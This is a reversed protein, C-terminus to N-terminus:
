HHKGKKFFSLELSLKGVLEYLALNERKLRNIEIIGSDSALSRKSLWGYVTKPSIGADKAAQNASVGDNKVRSLIQEKVEKAIPNFM